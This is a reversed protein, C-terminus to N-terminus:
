WSVPYSQGGTFNLLAKGSGQFTITGSYAFGEGSSGTGSVSFTGEGSLIKGTGRRVRLNTTSFSIKSKLSSGGVKLKQTGNREYSQTSLLDTSGPAFGNLTFNGTVEDESSLVATSYSGTGGFVHSFSTAVGNGCNSTRRWNLAFRYSVAGSDRQKAVTTDTVTGCFAPNLNTMSLVVATQTQLELGGSEIGLAGSALKVIDAETIASSQTDLSKECSSFLLSVVMATAFLKGAAKSRSIFLFNSKM